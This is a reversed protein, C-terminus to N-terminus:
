PQSCTSVVMVAVLATNSESSFHRNGEGALAIEPFAILDSEEQPSLMLGFRKEYFRVADLFVSRPCARM